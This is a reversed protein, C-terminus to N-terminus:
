CHSLCVYTGQKGDTDLLKVGHRGHLDVLVELDVVRKPLPVSRGEGCHQHSTVCNHIWGHARELSLTSSTDGNLLNASHMGQIISRARVFTM